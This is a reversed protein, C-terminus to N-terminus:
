DGCDQLADAGLYGLEVMARIEDCDMTAPEMEGAGAGEVGVLTQFGDHLALLADLAPGGQAALNRRETPDNALDYLQQEHVVTGDELKHGRVEDYILKAGNAEIAVLWTWDGGRMAKLESIIPRERVPGRGLAASAFSIGEHRIRGPLSGEPPNVDLLELVTPMVDILGVPTDIV